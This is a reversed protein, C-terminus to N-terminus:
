VVGVAKMGSLISLFLIAGCAGVLGLVLGFASGVGDILEGMVKDTLAESLAATGKYVLYHAGLKLFPGVCLALVVLLGFVGISSRIMGAGATLTGAAESITSGVVPLLTGIAAKAAKATLEDAQGAVIGTIGLYATFILVMLTLATTCAWKLLQAVKSLSENGLAAGAMLVALYAGIMPMILKVGVSLLVDMFLVSAAYKASASTYAGASVAAACLTPLLAKSFDSLTNITDIGLGIFSKMNDAALASVAVVGCLSVADKPGGGSMASGALACLLVVTLMKAGSSLATKLIGLGNEKLNELIGSLGDKGKLAADTPSIDGLVEEAEPPVAETLKDEDDESLFTRDDVVTPPVATIEGDEPAALAACCLSLVLASFCFLLLKRM